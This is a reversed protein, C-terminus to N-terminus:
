VTYGMRVAWPALLPMVPDLHRRYREWRAVARQYVPETIQSYSATRVRERVAASRRNDMIEDDWPLELAAMLPRLESATDTVLREYRVRTVRLDPFLALGKEWIDFAADYVRATEMLDTFSRMAVNMQFNAMYCSLVADCPHREVLVIRADPFIRRITAIRTMQLPHKDVIIRGPPHPSLKMVEEAYRRRIASVDSAEIDSLGAEDLGVSATSRFFAPLEELVHLRPVNMLLTDLLTTGSRPFGVIFIPSSPQPVDEIQRWAAVRDPALNAAIAKLQEHYTPGDLPRALSIAVQNMATFEKFARDSDGVRDSLEALLQHRRLPHVTEPVQEALALAEPLAGRRRLLWAKLFLLEPIDTARDTGLDVLAALDDIRNLNELLLGLELAAAVFGDSQEMARRLAAEAAKMDGCAAEALGLELQVGPADAHLAAAQRMLQRRGEFREAATLVRAFNFYIPLQDPRLRVARDFMELAEDIRGEAFLANGFDNLSEADTLDPIPRRVPATDENTSGSQEQLFTLLRLLRPDDQGVCLVEAKAHHGDAILATALNVRATVDTPAASLLRRYADAAARHDGSSAAMYGLVDLLPPKEGGTELANEIM